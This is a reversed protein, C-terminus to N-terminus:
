QNSTLLIPQTTVAGCQTAWNQPLGVCMQQCQGTLNLTPIEKRLRTGYQSRTSTSPPFYHRGYDQSACDWIASDWITFDCLNFDLFDADQICNSVRFALTEFTDQRSLGRNRNPFLLPSFFFSWVASSHILNWPFSILPNAMTHLSAPQMSYPPTFIFGSVDINPTDM